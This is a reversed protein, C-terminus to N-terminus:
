GPMNRPDNGPAITGKARIKNDKGHINLEGGGSRALYGRAADIAASQTDHVSSAHSSGERQAKWGDEGPVVHYSNREAMNIVGLRQQHICSLLRWRCKPRTKDSKPLFCCHLATDARKRAQVQKKSRAPPMSGTTVGSSGLIEFAEQIAAAIDSSVSLRCAM